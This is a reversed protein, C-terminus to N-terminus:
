KRTGMSALLYIRLLCKSLAKTVNGWPEVSSQLMASFILAQMNQIIVRFGPLHIHFTVMTYQTIYLVGAMTLSLCRDLVTRIAAMTTQSTKFVSVTAMLNNQWMMYLDTNNKM